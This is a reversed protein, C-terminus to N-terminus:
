WRTGEPRNWERRSFGAAEAVDLGLQAPYRQPHGFRKKSPWPTTCRRSLRIPELFKCLDISRFGTAAPIALNGFRALVRRDLLPNLMHLLGAPGLIQLRGPPAAHRARRRRRPQLLREPETGDLIPAPQIRRPFPHQFPERQAVVQQQHIVRPPQEAFPFRGRSSASIRSRSPLLASFQSARSTRQASRSPEQPAIWSCTGCTANM